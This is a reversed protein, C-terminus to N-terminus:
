PTARRRAVIGDPLLTLQTPTFDVFVDDLIGALTWRGRYRDGQWHSLQALSAGYRLTLAGAELAVTLAGYREDVYVGALQAPPLTAAATPQRASAAARAAAGAQAMADRALGLFEDSWHRGPRELLLDSLAYFLAAHALTQHVNLLVAFGCRREPFFALAANFGPMQGGHLLVREGHYDLVWWGLAYTWFHTAPQLAALPGLESALVDHMLTQPSTITAFTAPQLLPAGGALLLELWRRLDDASSYISGAPEDDLAFRPVVRPEGLLRVSAPCCEDLVAHPAALNALGALQRAGTCSRTMALPAFIRQEIFRAWPMGSCAEIILGAVGYHQNAYHFGARFGDVPALYRMRRVIERQDYGQHYYIRQARELGLRHSLMDRLTVHRTVWPDALAVDPLHRVVPDDWGLRGADVLMGAAASTFPKTTSGIAFITAADVPESDGAARVGYGQCYSGGAHVVALAAGPIQWDRLTATMLADIAASNM